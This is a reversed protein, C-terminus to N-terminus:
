NFNHSLPTFIIECVFLFHPMFYEANLTNEHYMEPESDM